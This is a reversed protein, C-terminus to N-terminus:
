TINAPVESVHLELHLYEVLFGSFIKLLDLCLDPDLIKEDDRLTHWFSPFPYQIIHLIPVQKEFFPIHDDGIQSRKKILPVPKFYPHGVVDSFLGMGNLRYELSILKEFLFDTKPDFSQFTPKAGGVLDLLLLVDMGQLLNSYSESEEVKGSTDSYDSNPILSCYDEGNGNDVCDEYSSKLVAKRRTEWDKALHRAGYISDKDSWEEFAEEGDFFVVQITTDERGHPTAKLFPDLISALYMIMACPAASDSAGTFVQGQFIKSDYHAALVLRRSKEPDFTFILNRFTKLGHPTNATFKDVEVHWGLKDFHTTIFKRVRDHGTSGVTRPILIPTLFYDWFEDVDPLTSLKVLGQRSIKIGSDPWNHPQVWVALVSVQLVLLLVCVVAYIFPNQGAPPQGGYPVGNNTGSNNYAIQNMPPLGYQQQRVGYPQFSNQGYNVGMSNNPMYGGRNYGMQMGQNYGGSMSNGGGTMQMTQLQQQLREMKKERELNRNNMPPAHGEPVLMNNALPQDTFPNIANGNGTLNPQAGGKSAMSQLSQAPPPLNGGNAGLIGGFLSQNQNWLDDPRGNVIPSTQPQERALSSTGYINYSNHQSLGSTASSSKRSSSRFESLLKDLDARLSPPAGSFISTDAPNGDYPELLDFHGSDHFLTYFVKTANPPAVLGSVDLGGGLSATKERVFVLVYNDRYPGASMESIGLYVGENSMKTIHKQILEVSNMANANAFQCQAEMLLPERLKPYSNAQDYLYQLLSRREASVNIAKHGFTADVDKFSIRNNLLMRICLCVLVACDGAGWLTHLDAFGYQKMSRKTVDSKFCQELESLDQQKAIIQQIGAEGISAELQAQHAEMNKTSSGNGGGSGFPNSPDGGNSTSGALLGGTGGQRAIRDKEDKESLQIALEVQQAESLESTNAESTTITSVSTSTGAQKAREDAVSIGKNVSSKNTDWYRNSYRNDSIETNTAALEGYGTNYGSVWPDYKASHKADQIRPDLKKAIKKM